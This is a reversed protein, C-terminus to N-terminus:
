IKLIIDERAKVRISDMSPPCTFFHVSNRERPRSGSIERSSIVPRLNFRRIQSPSVYIDNKVLFITPVASLDMDM